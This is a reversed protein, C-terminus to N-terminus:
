RWRPRSTTVETPRVAQWTRGAPATWRRGHTRRDPPPPTATETRSRACAPRRRTVAPRRAAWCRRRWNTSCQWRRRWPSYWTSPPVRPLLGTRRSASLRRQPRWARRRLTTWRCRHFCRSSTPGATWRLVQSYDWWWTSMVTVSASWTLRDNSCALLWM